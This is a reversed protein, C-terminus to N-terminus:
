SDSEYEVVKKQIRRIVRSRATYIAGTDKGLERAVDEV